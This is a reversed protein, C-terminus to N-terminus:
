YRRAHNEIYLFPNGRGFGFQLLSRRGRSVFRRFLLLISREPFMYCHLCGSPQVSASVTFTRIGRSVCPSSWFIARLLPRGRADTRCASASAPYADPQPIFRHPVVRYHGLDPQRITLTTPDIPLRYRTRAPRHGPMPCYTASTPTWSAPLRHLSFTG